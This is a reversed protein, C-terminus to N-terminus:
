GDTHEKVLRKVEEIVLSGFLELDTPVDLRTDVHLFVLDTYLRDDSAHWVVGGYEPAHVQTAILHETHGDLDLGLLVGGYVWVTEFPGFWGQDGALSGFLPQESSSFELRVVLPGPRLKRRVEPHPIPPMTM